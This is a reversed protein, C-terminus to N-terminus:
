IFFLYINMSNNVVKLILILFKLWWKITDDTVELNRYEPKILNDRRQM